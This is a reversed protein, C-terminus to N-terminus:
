LWPRMLYRFRLDACSVGLRRMKKAVSQGIREATKNGKRKCKRIGVRGANTLSVTRRNWSKNIVTAQCNNKTGYVVIEFVHDPEFIRGNQNREVHYFEPRGGGLKFNMFNGPFKRREKKSMANLKLKHAKERAEKISQLADEASKSM